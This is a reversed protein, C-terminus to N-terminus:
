SRRKPSWYAKKGADKRLQSTNVCIGTSKKFTSGEQTRKRKTNKNAM